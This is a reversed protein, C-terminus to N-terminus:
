IGNGEREMKGRGKREMERWEGEGNRGGGFGALSPRPSCQLSDWRHGRYLGPVFVNQCM